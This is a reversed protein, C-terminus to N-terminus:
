DLKKELRELRATIDELAGLIQTHATESAARVSGIEETLRTDLSSIEETLKETLRTDLNNIEETLKETLGNDLNNIENKTRNFHSELRQSIYRFQRDEFEKLDAKTLIEGNEM